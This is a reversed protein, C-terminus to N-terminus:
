DQSVSRSRIEGVEIQINIRDEFAKDVASPLNAFNETNKSSLETIKFANPTVIQNMSLLPSVEDPSATSKKSSIPSFLSKYISDIYKYTKRQQSSKHQGQARM